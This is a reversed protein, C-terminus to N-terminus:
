RATRSRGSPPADLGWLKARRKSIALLRDIAQLSGKEVLPWLVMSMEDLRLDELKRYNDAIESPIEILARECRRLATSKHCGMRQAITEYTLGDSRLRLAETDLRADAECRVFGRKTNIPM